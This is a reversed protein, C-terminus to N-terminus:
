QKKNPICPRVSLGMRRNHRIFGMSCGEHIILANATAPYAEVLNSSWYYGCSYPLLSAGDDREENIAPLFIQRRNSGTILTGDIGNLQTWEAMCYRALEQLQAYTPMQWDGGMKMHAVDYETGSINSGIYTYSGAGYQPYTFYPYAYPRWINLDGWAYHNGYNEPYSAGVNCCSWKTGSPLELDIIHPHNGDPCLSFEYHVAYVQPESWGNYTIDFGGKTYIGLRIDKYYNEDFKDYDISLPIEITDENPSSIGNNPSYGLTYKSPFYTYSNDDDKFYFGWENIDEVSNIYGSVNCVFNVKNGIKCCSVQKFDRIYADLVNYNYNDSYKIINDNVDDISNALRTSALFSRFIFKDGKKPMPFSVMFHQASSVKSDLLKVVYYPDTYFYKRPVFESRGVIGWYVTNRTAEESEKYYLHYLHDPITNANEISVFVDINGKGDNSIEEIKISCDGYMVRRHREYLSDYMGVIMNKLTVISLGIPNTGLIADFSFNSLDNLFELMDSTFLDLGIEGLSQINQIIDVVTHVTSPHLLSFGMARSTPKNIILKSFRHKVPLSCFENNDTIWSVIQEDNRTSVSIVIGNSSIDSIEGNENFKFLVGNNDSSSVYVCPLDGNFGALVYHTDNSIGDVWDQLDKAPIQYFEKSEDENPNESDKSLDESGCSVTIFPLILFLLYQLQKM